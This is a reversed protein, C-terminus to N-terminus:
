HSPLSLSPYTFPLPFPFPLHSYSPPPTLLLYRLFIFSLPSLSPYIYHPLNPPNLQLTPAPSLLHSHYPSPSPLHSPLPLSIPLPLPASNIHYPYQPPLNLPTSHYTLTTTPIPPYTPPNPSHSPLHSHYPLHYLYLKM